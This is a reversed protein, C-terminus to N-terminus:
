RDCGLSLLRDDKALADPLSSIISSKDFINYEQVNVNRHVPELGIVKRNNCALQKALFGLM